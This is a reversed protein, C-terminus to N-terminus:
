KGKITHPLIPCQGRRKDFLLRIKHLLGPFPKIPSMKDMLIEKLWQCSDDGMAETDWKTAASEHNRNMHCVLERVLLRPQLQLPQIEPEQFGARERKM